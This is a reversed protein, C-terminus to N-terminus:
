HYHISEMTSKFTHLQFLHILLHVFCYIISLLVFYLFCLIFSYFLCDLFSKNFTLQFLNTQPQQEYIGVSKEERKDKLVNVYNRAM